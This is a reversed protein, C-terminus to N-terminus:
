MSNKIFDKILGFGQSFGERLYTLFQKKDKTVAQFSGYVHVNEPGFLGKLASFGVANNSVTELFQKLLPLNVVNNLTMENRLFTFQGQLKEICKTIKKSLKEGDPLDEGSCIVEFTDSLDLVDHNILTNVGNVGVQAHLNLAFPGEIEKDDIGDILGNDIEEFRKIWGKAKKRYSKKNKTAIFEKSIRYTAQAPLELSTDEFKVEPSDVEYEFSMSEVIRTNFKSLNKSAFLYQLISRNLAVREQQHRYFYRKRHQTRFTMQETTNGFHKGWILAQLDLSEDIRLGEQHSTIYPMLVLSGEPSKGKNLETMAEKLNEDSEIQGLDSDSFKLNTTLSKSLSTRYEGSLLTMKLLKYFDAQLGIQLSTGSVKTNKISVRLADDFGRDEAAPRQYVLSNLKSFYLTGRGYGSMFYVSPTDVSLSIDASLFDDRRILDGDDLKTYRTGHFKLFSFLLKDINTTLAKLYTPATHRYTYTRKFRVGAFLKLNADTIELDGENRLNELFSRASLNLNIKDVIIWQSSNFAPEITRGLKINANGTAIDWRYGPTNLDGLSFDRKYDLIEKTLDNVKDVGTEKLKNWAKQLIPALNLKRQQKQYKNKLSDSVEFHEFEGASVSFCFVFSILVTILNNM